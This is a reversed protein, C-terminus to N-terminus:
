PGGWTGLTEGSGQWMPGAAPRESGTGLTDRPEWGLAQEGHVEMGRCAAWGPEDQHAAM